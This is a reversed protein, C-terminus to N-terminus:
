IEKKCTVVNMRGCIENSGNLEPLFSLLFFFSFVLQSLILCLFIYIERNVTNLIDQDKYSFM